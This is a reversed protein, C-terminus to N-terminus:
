FVQKANATTNYATGVPNDTYFGSLKKTLDEM